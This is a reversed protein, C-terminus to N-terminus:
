CGLGNHFDRLEILAGLARAIHVLPLLSCELLVTHEQCKISCEDRLCIAYRRLTGNAGFRRRRPTTRRAWCARHAFQACITLIVSILSSSM